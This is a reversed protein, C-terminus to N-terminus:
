ESQDATRLAPAVSKVALPKAPASKAVRLRAADSAAHAAPQKVPKEAVKVPGAEPDKPVAQMVVRAPQLPAAAPRIDRPASALAQAPKGPANVRVASDKAGPQIGIGARNPASSVALKTNASASAPKEAPAAVTGGVRSKEPLLALGRPSEKSVNAPGAPTQKAIPQMAAASRVPPPAAVTQKAGALPAVAQTKPATSSAHAPPPAAALVQPAKTADHAARSSAPKAAEMRGLLALNSALKPNYGGAAQAQKLLKQAGSLDGVLMRSVAYNNLIAADGPHLTLGHEYAAAANKSDDMQDYAVGLASYLTWDRPKLQVSRKLFAVADTSRGQQVLAKGYGGIVRPDDPAILVLQAFTRISETLDGRARLTEARVIESELDAAPLAVPRQGATQANAATSAARGGSSSVAKPTEACASACLALASVAALRLPQCFM